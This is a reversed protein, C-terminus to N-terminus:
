AGTATFKITNIFDSLRTFMARYAVMVGLAVAAAILAYELATAGKRDAAAAKAIMKVTAFDIM